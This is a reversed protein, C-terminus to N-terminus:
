INSPSEVISLTERDDNAIRKVKGDIGHVCVEEIEYIYPVRAIRIGCRLNWYSLLSKKIGLIDCTGTSGHIAQLSVLVESLPKNYREQVDKMKRSSYREPNNLEVDGREKSINYSRIFM